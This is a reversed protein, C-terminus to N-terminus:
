FWSAEAIVYWSYLSRLKCEPTFCAKSQPPSSHNITSCNATEQTERNCCGCSHRNFFFFDATLEKTKSRNPSYLQGISSWWGKDDTKVSVLSPSTIMVCLLVPVLWEGGCSCLGASVSQLDMHHLRLRKRQATRRCAFDVNHHHTQIFSCM